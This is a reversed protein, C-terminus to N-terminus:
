KSLKIIVISYDEYIEWVKKMLDSYKKSVLIDICEKTVINKTIVSITELIQELSKIDTFDSDIILKLKWRIKNTFNTGLEEYYQELEFDSIMYVIEEIEIDTLDLTTRKIEKM